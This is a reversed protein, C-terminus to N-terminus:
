KAVGEMNNEIAEQPSMDQNWIREQYKPCAGCINGNPCEEPCGDAKMVALCTDCIYIGEWLNAETEDIVKGCIKCNDKVM